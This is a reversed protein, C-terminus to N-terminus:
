FVNYFQFMFDFKKEEHKNKGSSTHTEKMLQLQLPEDYDEVDKVRSLLSDVLEKRNCAIIGVHDGPDYKIEEQFEFECELKQLPITICITFLSINM